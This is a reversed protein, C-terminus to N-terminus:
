ESWTAFIMKIKDADLIDGVNRKLRWFTLERGDSNVLTGGVLLKGYEHLFNDSTRVPIGYLFGKLARLATSKGAENPGYIIHLGPTESSFDLIVDTLNGFAKIDLRAIKM